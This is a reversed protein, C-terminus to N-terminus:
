EQLPKLAHVLMNSSSKFKMVASESSTRMLRNTGYTDGKMTMSKEKSQKLEENLLSFDDELVKLYDLMQKQDPLSLKSIILKMRNLRSIVSLPADMGSGLEFSEKIAKKEERTMNKKVHEEIEEDDNSESGEDSCETEEDDNSESGEDSCETEEDVGALQKRWLMGYVSDKKNLLEDHTGIEAVKGKNFAVIKDADKITSLRHAIVFTTRNEGM